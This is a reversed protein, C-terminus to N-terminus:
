VDHEVKLRKMARRLSEGVTSKSVDLIRAIESYGFGEVRLLICQKQQAPLRNLTARLRAYKEQQLVRQEPDPDPDPRVKSLWDWDVSASTIQKRCGENIALNHATRYVWAREHSVHGGNRTFSYLKIFAEQTIEEAIGSSGVITMVYRYVGDRLREFLQTIQEEGTMDSELSSMNIVGLHLGDYHDTPM